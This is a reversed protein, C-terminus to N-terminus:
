VGDKGHFYLQLNEKKISWCLSLTVEGWEEWINIGNDGCMGLDGETKLSPTVGHNAKVRAWCGGFSLLTM